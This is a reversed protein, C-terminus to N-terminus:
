SRPRTPPPLPEFSGGRVMAWAPERHITGDRALRLVGSGGMIRNESAAALYPLRNVIRFADVGFAFLSEATGRLNSFPGQLLQKQAPPYLRWPMDCVRIGNLVATRGVDRGAQSATYVPIDAAFHFKLAAVLSAMHDGDLLAVVGDVDARRRTTFEVEEGAFLRALAESRRQSEDVSLAAGVVATVEKIDRFVAEDVLASGEGLGTGFAGAARESWDTGLRFVLVRRRGDGTVRHALARGEDEVALAFQVVRAPEGATAPAAVSNLTLTPVVPDLAWMRAVNEKSLPGVIAKAGSALAEEYLADVSAAGTDYLRVSQSPAPGAGFYAALFGDRVAKGAGALRGSLPLLLAIRAPPSGEWGAPAVRAGPHHPHSRRWGMWLARQRAPTLADNYAELLRWWAREDDSAARAGREAVRYGRARVGHRWIARGLAEVDGSATADFAILRAVAGAYDGYAADIEAQLRAFRLHRRSRVRDLRRLGADAQRLDGSALALGADLLQLELREEPDLSAEAGVWGARVAEVAERASPVDGADLLAWARALRRATASSTASAEDVAPPAVGSGTPAETEVQSQCGAAM